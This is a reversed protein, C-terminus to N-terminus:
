TAGRMRQMADSAAQQQNRFALAVSLMALADADDDSRPNWGIARCAAIVARKLEDRGAGKPYHSGLFHRRWESSAMESCPIGEAIAVLEVIGALTYLKRCTKFNTTAPLIPAEFVIERPRLEKVKGALWSAFHHLARGLDDGTSPLVFVGHSPAEGPEGHAWGTSTAVDLSLISM